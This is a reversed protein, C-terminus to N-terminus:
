YPHVYIYIEGRLQAVEVTRKVGHTDVSDVLWCPVDISSADAVAGPKEGLRRRWAAAWEVPKPYRRKM